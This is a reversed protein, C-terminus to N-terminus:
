HASTSRVQKAMELETSFASRYIPILRHVAVSATSPDPLAGKHGEGNLCELRSVWYFLPDGRNEGQKRSVLRTPARPGKFFSGLTM